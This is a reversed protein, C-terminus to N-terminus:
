LSGLWPKLTSLRQRVLPLKAGPAVLALRDVPVVALDRQESKARQHDTLDLPAQVVRRQWVAGQLRQRPDLDDRVGVTCLINFRQGIQVQGLTRGVMRAGDGLRHQPVQPDDVVGALVDLLFLEDLELVVPYADAPVVAEVVQGPDRLAPQAVEHLLPHGVPEQCAGVAADGRVVLDASPRGPEASKQDTGRAAPVVRFQQGGRQDGVEDGVQAVAGFM